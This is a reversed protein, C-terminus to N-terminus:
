TRASLAAHATTLNTNTATEAYNVILTLASTRDISTGTVIHYGYADELAVLNCAVHRIPGRVTFVGRAAGDNLIQEYLDAQKDFLNRRMHADGPRLRAQPSFEYLLCCLSDDRDAPLGSEIMTLLRAVPDRLGDSAQQRRQHFREIADEYVDQFLDRVDRWYYTVTGPSTNAADAIDRVRVGALGRDRIARQAATILHARQAEQRRPRVM